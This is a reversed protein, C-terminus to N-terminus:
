FFLLIKKLYWFLQLSTSSFFCQWLCLPGLTNLGHSSYVKEALITEFWNLDYVHNLNYVWHGPDLQEWSKKWSKEVKKWSNKLKKCSKKWSIEVKKDIKKLKKKLNKKEVKKKKM